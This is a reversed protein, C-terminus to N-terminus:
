MQTLSLINGDPDKFWAIRAGAPTQWIGDADQELFSYREFAIGKSRLTAVARRIDPVEWGLVTHEIKPLNQVKQVRLTTGSADFVLAFPEDAVLRLGLVTEYFAKSREPDRTAAFAVLRASGLM